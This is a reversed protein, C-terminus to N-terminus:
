LNKLFLEKLEKETNEGKVVDYVIEGGRKIVVVRDAMNVAEDVDHTVFLTTKREEANLQCFFNMLKYKLSLDLNTFPEDMLLLPAGFLFARLIAVRRSMGASLRSPYENRFEYLNAKELFENVKQEDSVLMLNQKVTMHPILRDSQFVYGKKEPLGFIEGSYSTLGALVNLLTTKGSGSDGMLATVTGDTLSLNFNEFVPLNGYKKSLSKIEIM